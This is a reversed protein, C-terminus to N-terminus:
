FDEEEMQFQVSKLWLHGPGDLTVGFVFAFAGIAIPLTLSYKTWDTTGAIIEEVGDGANLFPKVFLRVRKVSATKVSASLRISKGWYHEASVMQQLTCPSALEASISKLFACSEGPPLEATDIGSEYHWVAKGKVEWFELGRSFDLNFPQLRESGIHTDTLPVSDDVTELEIGDLWISGNGQERMSFSFSIHHTDQPIDMVLVHPTWAQTDVIQMTESNTSYSIPQEAEGSIGAPLTFPGVLSMGFIPQQVGEARLYAIARVREGCYKDARFSQYSLITIHRWAEEQRLTLALTPKGSRIVHTDLAGRANYSTWGRMGQSFDLNDPARRSRLLSPSDSALQELTALQQEQTQGFDALAISQHEFVAEAISIPPQARIALRLADDLRAKITHQGRQGRLTVRAYLLDEYLEEIVIEEIRGELAHIMQVLLESTDPEASTTEPKAPLHMHFSQQRFDSVYPVWARQQQEDLLLLLMSDYLPQHRQVVKVLHLRLRTERKRPSRGPSVIDTYLTQLHAQLQQRGKHLRNKVASLSIALRNAIEQMSMDEYYFLFAVAQNKPTLIGIASRVAQKLEREEAIEQPDTSLPHEFLTTEDDLSLESAPHLRRWNRCLNLVIGYLWSKFRAADRLRDLSLYAQLLAEQVLEHAIEEQGVLRLALYFAVPQYREVLCRFAHTDDARARAVLQADTEEEM